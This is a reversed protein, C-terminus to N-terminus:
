EIPPFMETARKQVRKMDRLFAKHKKSGIKMQSIFVRTIPNDRSCEHDAYAAVGMNYLALGVNAIHETIAYRDRGKLAPVFSELMQRFDRELPSLRLLENLAKAIRLLRSNEAKTM